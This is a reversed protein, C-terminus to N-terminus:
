FMSICVCVCVRAGLDILCELSSPPSKRCEHLWNSRVVLFGCRMRQHHRILIYDVDCNGYVFLRTLEASSSWM